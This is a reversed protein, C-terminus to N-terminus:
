TAHPLTLYPATPNPLTLNPLANLKNSKDGIAFVPFTQTTNTSDIDDLQFFVYQLTTAIPVISDNLKFDVIVHYNTTNDFAFAQTFIYPCNTAVNCSQPSSTLFIARITDGDYVMNTTNWPSPNDEFHPVGIFSTAEQGYFFSVPVTVTNRVESISMDANPQEEIIQALAGSVLLLSAIIFTPLIL